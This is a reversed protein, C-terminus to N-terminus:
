AGDVLAALESPLQADLRQRADPALHRGLLSLVAKAARRAPVADADAALLHGELTILWDDLTRDRGSVRHPQWGEFWLGRILAPLDQALAVADDDGLRDRLAHLTARLVAFAMDADCGTHAAIESLWDSAVELTPALVSAEDM